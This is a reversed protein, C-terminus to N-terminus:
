IKKEHKTYDKKVNEYIEEFKPELVENLSVLESNTKIKMRDFVVRIARMHNILTLVFIISTLKKRSTSFLKTNDLTKFIQDAILKTMFKKDYIARIM